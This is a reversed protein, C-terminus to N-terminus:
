SDKQVYIINKKQRIRERKWTKNEKIKNTKKLKIKRKTEFYALDIKQYMPVNYYSCVVLPKLWLVAWQFFNVCSKSLFYSEKFQYVASPFKNWPCM